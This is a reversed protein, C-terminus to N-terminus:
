RPLLAIGYYLGGEDPRKKSARWRRLITSPKLWFNGLEAVNKAARDPDQLLYRGDGCAGAVTVWHGWNDVCLITPWAPACAELWERAGSKHDTELERYDFGLKKLGRCVDFEDAGQRIDWDPDTKDRMASQIKRHGITHVGYVRLANQIAAISCDYNNNQYKM